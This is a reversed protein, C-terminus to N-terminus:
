ALLRQFSIRFVAASPLFSGRKQSSQLRSRCGRHTQRFSHSRLFGFRVSPQYPAQTSLVDEAKVPRSSQQYRSRCPSQSTQSIAKFQQCLSVKKAWYNTSVCWQGSPNENQKSPPNWCDFCLPHGPGARRSSLLQVASPFSGTKAFVMKIETKQLVSSYPLHGWLSDSQARWPLYTFNESRKADPVINGKLSPEAPSTKDLNYLTKM